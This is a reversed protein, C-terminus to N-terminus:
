PHTEKQEEDDYRRITMVKNETEVWVQEGCTLQYRKEPYPHYLVRAAELGDQGYIIVEHAFGIQRFAPHNNMHTKVVFVPERQGTKANSRIRHQDVHIKVKM